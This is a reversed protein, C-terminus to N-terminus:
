PRDEPLRAHLQVLARALRSKVTGPAVDLAAAVQDTSWDLYLRLVVVARQDITLEALAEGITPDGVEPDVVARDPIPSPDTRRRRATRQWGRARNVAVRYVWGAPNGYRRVRGWRQYAAVMADTTADVGLHPDGVTLGVARAILLRHQEYFEQFEDPARTVEAIDIRSLRLADLNADM